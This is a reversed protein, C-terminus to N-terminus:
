LVIEPRGGGIKERLGLPQPKDMAQVIVTRWALARVLVSMLNCAVAAAVWHWEVAKFADGVAGWAPGRWWLLAAVGCAALAILVLRVWTKGLLTM